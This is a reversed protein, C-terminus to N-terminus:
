SPLERSSRVHVPVVQSFCTPLGRYSPKQSQVLGPHGRKVHNARSGRVGRFHQAPLVAYSSNFGSSKSIKDGDRAIWEGVNGFQLPDPKNHLVSLHDFIIESRVSIFFRRMMRASAQLKPAKLSAAACAVAGPRAGPVTKRSQWSHGSITTTGAPLKVM